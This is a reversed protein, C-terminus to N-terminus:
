GTSEGVLSCFPTCTARCRLINSCYSFLSRWRLTASSCSTTGPKVASSASLASSKQPPLHVFHIHLTRLQYVHFCPKHQKLWWVQRAAHPAGPHGVKNAMSGAGDYREDQVWGTRTKSVCDNGPTCPPRRLREAPKLHPRGACLSLLRAHHVQLRPPPPQSLCSPLRSKVASWCPSALPAGGLASLGKKEQFSPPHAAEQQTNSGNLGAGMQCARVGLQLM